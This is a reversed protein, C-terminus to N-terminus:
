EEKDVSLKQDLDETFNGNKMEQFVFDVEKDWNIKDEKKDTRLSLPNGAGNQNEKSITVQGPFQSM